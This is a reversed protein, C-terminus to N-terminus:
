SYPVTTSVFNSVSLGPLGRGIQYLDWLTLKSPKQHPLLSHINLENQVHPEPSGRMSTLPWPFRVENKIPFPSPTPPTPLPSCCPSARIRQYSTDAPHSNIHLVIFVNAGSVQPLLAKRTGLCIRLSDVSTM